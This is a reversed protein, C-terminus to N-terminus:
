CIERPSFNDEGNMKRAVVEEKGCNSLNEETQSAAGVGWKGSNGVGEGVSETRGAWIQVWNM